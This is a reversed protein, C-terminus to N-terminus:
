CAKSKAAFKISRMLEVLFYSLKQHVFTDANELFVQM